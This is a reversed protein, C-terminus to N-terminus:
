LSIVSYKTALGAGTKTVKFFELGPKIALIDKLTALVSSPIRYEDGDVNVLNLTFEDTTGEKFTKQFVELATSVKDLEAINRTQPAEYSQATQAISAM